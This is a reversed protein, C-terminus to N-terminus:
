CNSEIEAMREVSIGLSSGLRDLLRREKESIAGDDAICAKYEELYEKEETTLSFSTCQEELEKIRETPIGLSQALRNLLRRERDSIENDDALCTKFEELYEREADSITKLTSEDSDLNSNKEKLLERKAKEAEYAELCEKINSTEKRGRKDLCEGWKSFSYDIQNMLSENLPDRPDTHKWWRWYALRRFNWYVGLDQVWPVSSSQCYDKYNELANLAREFEKKETLELVDKIMKYSYINFMKLEVDKSQNDDIVFEQIKNYTEFARNFLFNDSAQQDHSVHKWQIRLLQIYLDVDDDFGGEIENCYDVFYEEADDFLKRDLLQDVDCLADEWSEALETPLGLCQRYRRQLALSKEEADEDPSLDILNRIALKAENKLQCISEDEVGYELRRVLICSLYYYYAYGKELNNDIFFSDLRSQADSFQCNDIMQNITNREPIWLNDLSSNSAVQVQNDDGILMKGLEAVDEITGKIGRENVYEEAVSKALNGLNKLFGM